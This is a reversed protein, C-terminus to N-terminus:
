KRASLKKINLTKEKESGRTVREKVKVYEGTRDKSPVSSRQMPVYWKKKRRDDDKEIKRKTYM